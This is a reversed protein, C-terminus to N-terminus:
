VRVFEPAIVTGQLVKGAFGVTVMLLFLVDVPVSLRDTSKLTEPKGVPAVKENSPLLVHLGDQEVTIVMDSGFVFM